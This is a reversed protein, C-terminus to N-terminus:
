LFSKDTRVSYGVAQCNCSHDNFKDALILKHLFCKRCQLAQTHTNEKKKEQKRGAARQESVAQNIVIPGFRSPGPTQQKNNERRRWNIVLQHKGGIISIIIEESRAFDECCYVEKSPYIDFHKNVLTQTQLLSFFFAIFRRLSM